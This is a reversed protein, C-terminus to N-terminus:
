IKENEIVEKIKKSIIISAKGCEYLGIKKKFNNINDLYNELNFNNLIKDLEEENKAIPFPLEDFNFYLERDNDLYKELDKVFLICPKNLQLMDFSCGSYDTILIDTAILLEQMDPYETLDIFKKIERININNKVNPHLRIFFTKDNKNKLKKLNLLWSIDDKNNRFTPAYLIKIQKQVNYKKDFEENIEKKLKENYFIDSRPTGCELIEGNYNFARKYIKTSYASGSVLLDIMKSDNNIDKLYSNSLKNKIDLEIKKLRMSSHWTQIYYQNNRKKVFSPFRSNNIWIKATSMHFFYAISYLKIPKIFKPINKEIDKNKVVWYIKFNEKKLKEAIYKGNDGYGKGNYNTIIIKNDEINFIRFVYFPISMVNIINTNQLIFRKLQKIM